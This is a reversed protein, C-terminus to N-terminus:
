ESSEQPCPRKRLDQHKVPNFRVVALSLLRKPGNRQADPERSADAAAMSQAGDNM